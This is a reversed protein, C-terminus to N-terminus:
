TRSPKSSSVFYACLVDPSIHAPVEGSLFAIEIGRGGSFERCMAHLGSVLGLKDLTASHLRHSVAHLDDGLERVTEKLKELKQDVGNSSTSLTEQADRLGFVLLAVRQSFDDHLEAALRSREREQAGILLGSLRVQTDTALTLQTRSYLLYATLAALLVIIVLGGILIKKRTGVLVARPVIEPHCIM